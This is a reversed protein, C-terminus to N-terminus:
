LQRANANFFTSAQQIHRSHALVNVSPIGCFSHMTIQDIQLCNCNQRTVNALLREVATRVSKQHDFGVATARMAGAMYFFTWGSAAIKKQLAQNNTIRAWGNGISVSDGRSPDPLLTDETILLAGDIILGNRNTSPYMAKGIQSRQSAALGPQLRRQPPDQSQLLFDRM